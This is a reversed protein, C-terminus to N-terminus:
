GGTIPPFFAVEDGDKVLFDAQKFTHNISCVVFDPMSSQGTAAQWVDAVTTTDTVPVESLANPNDERLSAFLKVQISM